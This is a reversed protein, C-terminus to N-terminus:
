SPRSTSSFKKVGDAPFVKEQCGGEYFELARQARV